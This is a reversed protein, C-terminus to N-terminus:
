SSFSVIASYDDSFAKHKVDVVNERSCHKGTTNASVAETSVNLQLANPVAECFGTSILFFVCVVLADVHRPLLLGHRTM